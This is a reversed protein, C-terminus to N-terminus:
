KLANIDDRVKQLRARLVPLQGAIPDLQVPAGKSKAVTYRTQAANAAEIQGLIRAEEAQLIQRRSQLDTAAARAKELEADTTAAASAATAASAAAAAASAAQQVMRMAVDLDNTLVHPPVTFEQRGDTVVMATDTRRVLKVQAGVKLGVVGSETTVEIRQTAYFVGEPALRPAPPPVPAPAVAAVEPLPAPAPKPSLGPQEQAPTAPAQDTREVKDCGALALVLVMAPFTRKM